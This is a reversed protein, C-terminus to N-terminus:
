AAGGGRTANRVAEQVASKVYVKVLDKRYTPAVGCINNLPHAQKYAEEALGEIVEDRLEKGKLREAEKILVPAREVATLALAAAKCIAGGNEMTLNVAVGLLPYDISKRLRLKLYAGGSRPSPVPVQIETLVQGPKLVNPRKGDGSYFENLPIVKTRKSDVIKVKARLVLLVPAIDGCFAAWCTASRGVAHCVNGELKHCPELMQRSMPSRNYYLCLNDQCINGGITGMAQLQLTGVELAAQSLIPYKQRVVANSALQRLSALAGVKLGEKDSYSIKNVGPIGRLDVLVEPVRLRNKLAMMLDTGGAIAQAKDGHAELLQCAKKISRPEAYEFRPPKM